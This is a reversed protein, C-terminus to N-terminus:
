FRSTKLWNKLEQQTLLGVIFSTADDYKSATMNWYQHEMSGKVM